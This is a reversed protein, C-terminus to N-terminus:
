PMRLRACISPASFGFREVGVVAGHDGVYREWGLARGAEVAVRATLGPPLVGRLGERRLAAEVRNFPVIESYVGAERVRRAILQTYQAGFDLILIKAHHM